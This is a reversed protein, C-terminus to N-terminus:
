HKDINALIQYNHLADGRWVHPRVNALEYHKVLQAGGALGARARAGVRVLERKDPAAPAPRPASGRAPTATHTCGLARTHSVCVCVCVCVCM